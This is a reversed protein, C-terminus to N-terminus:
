GLLVADLLQVPALVVWSEAIAPPEQQPQGGLVADGYPPAGM